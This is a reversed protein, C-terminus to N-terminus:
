PAPSPPPSPPAPAPPAEAVPPPPGSSIPVARGPRGDHARSRVLTSALRPSRTRDYTTWSGSPSRYELPLGPLAVNVELAGDVLRAGPVELRYHIRARDLKPLEKHGLLNAFREWDADLARRDIRAAVDAGDAPEWPARHWAREALALMRPFIMAELQQRTRVTESWLSGELGIINRPRSLPEVPRPSAASRAFVKAYDNGMQDRTLQANAPLNGSIFSFLKRVSTARTAWYYGREDPDAEHPHDLYLFDPSSLIVQYGADAMRHAANDWWFLTGWWNVSVPNGALDARPDLITKAAGDTPGTVAAAVTKRLGDSWGRLGLGREKALQNVRRIFHPHVDDVSHLGPTTGYLKQCAPSGTWAGAGVEDAGVHWTRLPAGAEAYMEKVEDMVKAMFAYSSELCANIANDDYNQVSSYRSRDQPDSLLYRADGARARAEMAKIAARAHGPSDIEPVVEIHRATAARLLTV